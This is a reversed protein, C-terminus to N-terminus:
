FGLWPAQGDTWLTELRSHDRKTDMCQWFGVHKYAKMKGQSAVLELPKGELVENDDDLYDFFEPEVVFFGGNIWSSETQPKEKFEKVIDDSIKIEGFRAGPHVASVTILSNNSKHFGILKDLDIDSLGDGYTLLFTENGIYERMRRVRGGTMTHLGTDILTVNWDDKPREHVIVNGSALNITFDSSLKGYNLFFDKVVDSKYGLALYFDNHGFFSFYKMLHWLIPKGGIPVM